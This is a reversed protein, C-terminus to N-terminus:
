KHHSVAIIEGRGLCWGVVDSHGQGDFVKVTVGGEKKGKGSEVIGM